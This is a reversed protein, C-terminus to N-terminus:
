NVEAMFLQEVPNAMKKTGTKEYIDRVLVFFNGSNSFGKNETMKLTVIRGNVSLTYHDVEVRDEKSAKDSKYLKITDRTVFQIETNFVIELAPYFRDYQGRKEEILKWDVVEPVIVEAPKPVPTGLAPPPVPTGPGVNSPPTGLFPVLVTTNPDMRKKNYQQRINLFRLHVAGVPKYDNIFTVSVKSATIDYTMRFNRTIIGTEDELQITTTDAREVVTSFLIDFSKESQKVIQLVTPAPEDDITAYAVQEVTIKDGTAANALDKYRVEITKGHLDEVRLRFRLGKGDSSVEFMSEPVVQGDVSLKFNKKNYNSLM